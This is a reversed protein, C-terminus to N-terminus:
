KDEGIVEIFTDYHDYTAFILGDNSFVVRQRNRYGNTYNIDAEYWIRGERDPLVKNKNKYVGGFIMHNPAVKALNGKLNNWGMEYAETKTIYYDPLENLYYMWWDAAVTRM